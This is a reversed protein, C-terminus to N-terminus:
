IAEPSKFVCDFKSPEVIFLEVEGFILVIFSHLITIQIPNNRAFENRKTGGRVLLDVFITYKDGFPLISCEGGIVVHRDELLQSDGCYDTKVMLRVISILKDLFADLMDVLVERIATDRRHVDDFGEKM